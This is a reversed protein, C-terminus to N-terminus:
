NRWPAALLRLAVWEYGDLTKRVPFAARKLLRKCAKSIEQWILVREM